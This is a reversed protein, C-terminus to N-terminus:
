AGHIQSRLLPYAESGAFSADVSGLDLDAQPLQPLCICAPSRLRVLRIRRIGLQACAPCVGRDSLEVSAVEVPRGTHPDPIARPAAASSALRGSGHTGPLLEFLGHFLVTARRIWSTASLLM